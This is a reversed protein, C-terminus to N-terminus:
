LMVVQRVAKGEHLRDFGENIEELRYTRSILQDLQLRRGMYQEVLMPFDLNPRVSGYMSGMLTKEMFVMSFPSIPTRM